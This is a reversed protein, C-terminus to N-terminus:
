RSRPFLLWAVGIAALMLLAFCWAAQRLRAAVTRQGVAAVAISILLAFLIMLTLHSLQMM